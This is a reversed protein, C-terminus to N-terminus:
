SLTVLGNSKSPTFKLSQFFFAQYCGGEHCNSKADVAPNFPSNDFTWGAWFSIYPYCLSEVYRGIESKEVRRLRQYKTGSGDPDVSWTVVDPEWDIQYRPVDFGWGKTCDAPLESIEYDQQKNWWVNTQVKRTTHGSFEFDIEQLQDKREDNPADYESLYFATTVGGGAGVKISQEYKGFGLAVKLRMCASQWKGDGDWNAMNMTAMEGKDWGGGPPAYAYMYKASPSRNMQAWHPSGLSYYVSGGAVTVGNAPDTRLQISM